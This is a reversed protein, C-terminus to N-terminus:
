ASRLRELFAFVADAEAPDTVDAGCDDCRQVYGDDLLEGTRRPHDCDPRALDRATLYRPM